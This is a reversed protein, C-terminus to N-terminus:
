QPEGPKKFEKRALGTQATRGSFELGKKGSTTHVGESDLVYRGGFPENPLQSIIKSSVLEDFSAPPAGNKSTYRQVAEELFKIDRSLIARRLKEEIVVRADANKTTRLLDSLYLVATQPDDTSALLRSALGALFPPADPLKAAAALDEAAAQSNTLFYWENFGRLYRLRWKEPLNEIGQTLISSSLEPDKVVWSILSGCFEYAHNARPNLDVVLKCMHGFWNLDRRSQIQKGFYNLTQFWLLDSFFNNFGLTVLRVYQAQPLYLPTDNRYALDDKAFARLKEKSFLAAAFAFAFAISFFLTRM